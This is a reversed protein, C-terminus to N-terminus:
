APAAGPTGDGTTFFCTLAVGQMQKKQKKLEEVGGDLRRLLAVHQVLAKLDQQVLYQEVGVVVHGPAEKLVVLEDVADHQTHVDHLLPALDGVGLPLVEQPSPGGHLLHAPVGSECSTDTRIKLKPM